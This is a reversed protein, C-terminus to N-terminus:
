QYKTNKFRVRNSRRVTKNDYSKTKHGKRVNPIVLPVNIEDDLHDDGDLDDCLDSARTVALCSATDHVLNDSNRFMTLPRELEVDKILRASTIFEPHSTGLSVGL